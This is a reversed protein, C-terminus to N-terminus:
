GRTLTRFRMHRKDFKVLANGTPGQRNAAIEIIQFESKDNQCAQWYEHMDSEPRPETPAYQIMFLNADQEISGSDRAESMSPKRKTGGQESERNFQTLALIPVNLDMAMLKLDRSISSVEEYRSKKKDDPRMLQIYDVMILSLGGNRQMNSAFRRIQLPTQKNTIRIKMQSVDHVAPPLADFDEPDLNKTVYKQMDTGTEAAMIRTMIEKQTMELSVILVPGTKRAVNVAISLGLATKGVKPRAGLIALMGNQLGGTISDIGAIGTSIMNDKKNLDDMWEILADQMTQADVRDANDNIATNLEGAMQDVDITPDAAKNAVSQCASLLVRRKRLDLAETELQRYMAPSIALSLCKQSCDVIAKAAGPIRNGVSVINPIGHEKVIGKIINFLERPEAYFFTDEPLTALQEACEQDTMALGLLTQETELNNLLSFGEESTANM